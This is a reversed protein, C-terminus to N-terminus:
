KGYAAEHAVQAILFRPIGLDALERDSLQNLEDMTQAFVRRRAFAAKLAQFYGGNRRARAAFGIRTTTAYAM